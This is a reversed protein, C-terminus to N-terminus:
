QYKPSNDIQHNILPYAKEEPIGTLHIKMLHIRREMVESRESKGDKQKRL